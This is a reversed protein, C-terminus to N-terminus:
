SPQDDERIHEVAETASAKGWKRSKNIELKRDVAARLECYTFGARRASDFVLFLLDAYEMIDAPNALTEQVEKALHKLPGEPGREEDTGFVSRSWHAQANWFLEMDPQPQRADM